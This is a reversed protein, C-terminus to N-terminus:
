SALSLFVFLSVHESITIKDKFCIKSAVWVCVCAYIFICLCKKLIIVIQEFCLIDYLIYDLFRLVIKLNTAAFLLILLGYPM